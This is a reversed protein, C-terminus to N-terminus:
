VTPFAAPDAVLASGTRKGKDLAIGGNSKPMPELVKRALASEGYTVSDESGRRSSSPTLRGPLLGRIGGAKRAPIESTGATLVYLLYKLNPLTHRIDVVRLGQKNLLFEIDKNLLFVGYEFRYHVNVPYLPFTRQPLAASVPDQILSHSLNPNIPYPIAVSLYFSLMYVLHATWGLAAAVAGRDIDVFNSNPLPVGAITFALPKDPIPEIPYIALLDEGIRRIQGKAEETNQDLLKASSALKQQADPLHSRAKEQSHRGTDMAERRARISAMLDAKRNVAIRLRKRESSVAHKTQALKERARSAEGVVDIARQNEELISSIQAELKERTLLADQICEDLNALRMLADYSSTSLGAGEPPRISKAPLSTWVPPLDTLSTYVGDAFHFLISNAPLPQHFNDLSKGLFQLSQLHLQLEVLLLYETMATTKTWLKLTLQDSRSVLPGCINLDFERFSPNTANEVIESVYVPGEHGDCHLSFWTDAMRTKTIDELKTQRTRPNPDNWPLLTNRRYSRLPQEKRTPNERRSPTSQLDTFSRSHHLHRNADQALIKSPSQLSNPIDEDDITKGRARNPPTVVLNRVSIGQLHRLRRNSPFLWPRERRGGADNDVQTTTVTLSM